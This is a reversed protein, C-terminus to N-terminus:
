HLILITEEYEEEEEVLELHEIQNISVLLLTNNPPETTTKQKNKKNLIRICTYLINYIRM